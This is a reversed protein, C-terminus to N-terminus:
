DYYKEYKRGEKRSLAHNIKEKMIHKYDTISPSSLSSSATGLPASVTASSMGSTLRMMLTCM